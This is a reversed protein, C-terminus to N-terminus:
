IRTGAVGFSLFFSLSILSCLLRIFPFAYAYFSNYFSFQFPFLSCSFTSVLHFSLSEFFLLGGFFFFLYFVSLLNVIFLDLFVPIFSKSLIYIGIYYLPFLCGFFFVIYFFCSLSPLFVALFWSWVFWFLSLDCSLVIFSVVLSCSIVSCLHFASHLASLEFLFFSSFFLVRSIAAFSKIDGSCSKRGTRDFASAPAVTLHRLHPHAHLPFHM